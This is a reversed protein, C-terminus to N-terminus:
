EVVALVSEELGKLMRELEEIREGFRREVVEGSGGSEVFGRYCTQLAVLTERAQACDDEAYATKRGVEEAADEVDERAREYLEQLTELALTVDPDHSDAPSPSPSAHRRFPTRPSSTFTRVSSLTYPTSFRTWQSTSALITHNRAQYPPAPQTPSPPSPPRHQQQQSNSNSNNLQPLFQTHLQTSTSRLTTTASRLVLTRLSPGIAPM